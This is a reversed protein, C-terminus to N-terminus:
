HRATTQGPRRHIALAWTLCGFAITSAVARVTNWATWMAEDLQARAAAFGADTDPDGASRIEENLPEHVSFTIVFVLLYFVLAAGIWMLAPRQEARRHLAVSLGTFLLAGIYGVGLFLPNTIASDLAQFAVVFTRDDVDSLGPMITNSWDVFVGATLGTTM